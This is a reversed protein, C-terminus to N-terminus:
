LIVPGDKLKERIQKEAATLWGRLDEENKITGGTLKVTQAKPELLRAAAALAQGFRTPLADGLTKWEKLRTTRSHSM